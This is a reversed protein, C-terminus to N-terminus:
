VVQSSHCRVFLSAMIDLTYPTWNIQFRSLRDFTWRYILLMNGSQESAAQVGSWRFSLPQGDSHQLTRHLPGPDNDYFGIICGLILTKFFFFICTSSLYTQQTRRSYLYHM